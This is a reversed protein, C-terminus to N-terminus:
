VIVFVPATDVIVPENNMDLATLPEGLIASRSFFSM